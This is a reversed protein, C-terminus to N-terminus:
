HPYSLWSKLIIEAAIADITYKKRIYINNRYNPNQHLRAENTTFREDHMKVTVPFRNKLQMAFKLALITIPQTEGNLQLPLGVVFTTPKWENYIKEIYKWNPVGFKSQLVTLPQATCTLKQGIAVGIKKIGFDFGIIIEIVTLM